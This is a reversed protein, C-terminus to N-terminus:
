IIKKVSLLAYAAVTPTDTIRGDIIMQGLENKTVQKVKIKDEREDLHQNGPTLDTALFIHFGQTSYGPAEHLFGIKVMTRAKYGTEEELEDKALKLPDTDPSSEHMGEPFEWSDRKTPYRYQKVLYFNKGDFPVILAFDSKEVVSYIGKHGNPFEVKDERVKM